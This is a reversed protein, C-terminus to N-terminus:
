DLERVVRFSLWYSKVAAANKARSASRSQRAYYYWSGGRIVRINCDGDVRPSGDRPAGQYHPVWCDSVWEYANGHMDYLGFPNPEFMGVPGNRHGPVAGACNRCNIKGDAEKDGFWFATTSGARAAYEWEAESPLRYTQGTKNSLWKAYGEAMHFDINMIPQRGRGWNHDHPNHSCGGETLCAEWNDFTIEFRSMAFSKKIFVPHKPQEAPLLTSGMIFAGKPLVVMEPCVDCDKFVKPAAPPQQATKTATQAWASSGCVSLLVATAM